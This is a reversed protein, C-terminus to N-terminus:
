IFPRHNLRSYTSGGGSGGDSVDSGGGVDALSGETTLKGTGSSIGGGGGGGNDWGWVKFGRWSAYDGVTEVISKGQKTEPLALHKPPRALLRFLPPLLFARNNGYQPPNLGNVYQRGTRAWDAPVISPM